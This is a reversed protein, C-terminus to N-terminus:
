SSLTLTAGQGNGGDGPPLNDGPPNGEGGDAFMQINLPLFTKLNFPNQNM